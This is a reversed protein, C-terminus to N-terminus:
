IVDVDKSIIEFGGWFFMWLAIVIIPIIVLFWVWGAIRMSAAAGFVEKWDTDDDSM